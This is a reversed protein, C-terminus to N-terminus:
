KSEGKKILDGYRSWSDKYLSVMKADADEGFAEVFDPYNVQMNIITLVDIVNKM